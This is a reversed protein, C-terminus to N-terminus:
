EYDDSAVEEDEYDEENDYEETNDLINDEVVFMDKDTNKEERAAEVLRFYEMAHEKCCAVDQWRFDDKSITTCYPYEKGCVKCVKTGKPM